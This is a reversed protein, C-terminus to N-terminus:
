GALNKQDFVGYDIGSKMIDPGASNELSVIDRQPGGPSATM